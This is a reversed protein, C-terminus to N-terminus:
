RLWVSLCRPGHLTLMNNLCEQEKWMRQLLEDGDGASLDERFMNLVWEATPGDVSMPLPLIGDM